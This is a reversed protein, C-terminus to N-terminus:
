LMVPLLPDNVGMPEGTSLPPEVIWLLGQRM